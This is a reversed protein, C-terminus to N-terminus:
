FILGLYTTDVAVMLFAAACAFHRYARFLSRLKRRISKLDTIAEKDPFYSHILIREAPVNADTPVTLGNAGSQQAYIGNDKLRYIVQCLLFFELVYDIRIISKNAIMVTDTFKATSNPQELVVDGLAYLAYLISKLHAFPPIQILPDLNCGAHIRKLNRILELLQFGSEWLFLGRYRLPM